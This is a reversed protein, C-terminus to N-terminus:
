MMAVSRFPPMGLAVPMTISFAACRTFTSRGSANAAATRGKRRVAPWYHATLCGEPLQHEGGDPSLGHERQHSPDPRECRRQRDEGPRRRARDGADVDRMESRARYWPRARPAGDRDM